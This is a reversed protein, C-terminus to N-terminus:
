HLFSHSTPNIETHNKRWQTRSLVLPINIYILNFISPFCIHTNPAITPYTNSPLIHVQTLNTYHFLSHVFNYLAICISCVVLKFKGTCGSFLKIILCLTCQQTLVITKYLICHHHTTPMKELIYAKYINYIKYIEM